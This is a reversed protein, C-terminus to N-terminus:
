RRFPRRLLGILTDLRVPMPSVKGKYIAARAAQISRVSHGEGLVESAERDANTRSGRAGEMDVWKGEQESEFDGEYLAQAVKARALTRLYKDPDEPRGRDRAMRRLEEAIRKPDEGAELREALKLLDERRVM